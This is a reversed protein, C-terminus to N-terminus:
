MIERREERNEKCIIRIGSREEGWGRKQGMEQKWGGGIDTKNGMRLFIWSDKRPSEKNNPKRPDTSHLM